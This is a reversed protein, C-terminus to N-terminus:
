APAISSPRVDCFSCFPSCTLFNCGCNHLPLPERYVITRLLLLQMHRGRVLFLPLRLLGCSLFCSSRCTFSPNKALTFSGVSQTLERTITSFAFPCICSHMSGFSRFLSILLSCKWIGVLSSIRPFECIRLPKRLHVSCGPEMLNLDVVFDEISVM